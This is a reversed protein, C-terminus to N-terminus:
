PPALAAPGAQQLQRIVTALQRASWRAQADTLATYGLVLAPPPSPSSGQWFSALGQLALGRQAASAIVAAESVGPPLRLVFHFGAHLGQGLEAPLGATRLEALVLDRRRQHRLRTRQLHRTFAGSAMFDALALQDLVANARGTAARLCILASLHRPPAVIYGIRLAPFLSKNFSGCLLVRGTTDQSKLAPLPATEYSFDSDYDDEILTADHEQAWQLLETRRRPSLAVGTPAQHAPTLYAAGAGSHKLDQVKMGEGDVAVAVTACGRLAFLEAAGRYGPDEIAVRAPRAERALFQACLDIAHRIGTVILIDGPTCVVGRALALHRCIAERLAPLGRPDSAHLLGPELAQAARAVSTRWAKLDLAMTDPLRAVFPQGARVAPVAPEATAVSACAPTTAPAARLFHEPLPDSVRTGRGVTAQLYGEQALREFALEVVGRSVAWRTALTRTSPVPQGPGLLGTAIAGAMQRYVWDQRSEGPRPPM